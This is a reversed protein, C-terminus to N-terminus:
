DDDFKSVCFHFSLSTLQVFFFQLALFTLFLQDKCHTYWYNGIFSYVAIWVNAKFSYRELLPREADPSNFGASPLLMPQLLFPLSLGVLVQLYTNATFDEYLQFAVIIGFCFMWVPTYASVYQEFALKSPESEPCPLWNGVSTTSAGSNKGKSANSDNAAIKQIPEQIAVLGGVMAIMTGLIAAMATGTSSILLM